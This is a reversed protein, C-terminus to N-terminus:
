PTLKKLYFHLIVKKLVLQIFVTEQQIGSSYRANLAAYLQSRWDEAKGGGGVEPKPVGVEPGGCVYLDHM